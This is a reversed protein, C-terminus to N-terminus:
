SDIKGVAISIVTVDDHFESGTKLAINELIASAGSDFVKDDRIMAMIREEGLSSDRRGADVLSPSCLIMRDESKLKYTNESFRPDSMGSIADQPKSSPDITSLRFIVGANLGATALTLQMASADVFGAAFSINANPASQLLTAIRTYLWALFEVPSFTNEGNIIKERFIISKLIGLMITGTVPDTVINGLLLIYKGNTLPIIDCYGVSRADPIPHFAVEICMRDSRHNKNQVISRRMENSLLRASIGAANREEIEERLRFVTLAKDIEALLYGKTWPKLIFGFIGSSLVKVIEDFDSYASLSIAIIDPYLQKAALILENGSMNPMRQDTIMICVRQGESKLMSLAASASDFDRISLKMKDAYSRLERKLARLINNDDDILLITDKM